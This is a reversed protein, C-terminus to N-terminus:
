LCREVCGEGSSDSGGLCDSMCELEESVAITTAVATVIRPEPASACAALVLGMLCIISFRTM